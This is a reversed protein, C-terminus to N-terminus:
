RTQNRKNKNYIIILGKMMLHPDVNLRHRCLPAIMDAFEGTIVPTNVKYGLEDQIRDLLGDISAACGYIVGSQMAKVTSKGIITSPVRLAAGPLESATRTLSDISVKLGPLILCGAFSNNKDLVFMAGATGLIIICLPGGYESIGAAAAVLMDGGLQTPDDIRINVGTKIGPGVEIVGRGLVSDMAQKVTETIQPVCSSLICGDIDDAPTKRLELLQRIIISYEASTRNLDTSISDEFYIHGSSEEACGIYIKTNEINVTIIM